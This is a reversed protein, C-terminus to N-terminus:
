CQLDWWFQPSRVTCDMTCFAHQTEHM